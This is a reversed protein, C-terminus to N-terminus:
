LGALFDEDLELFDRGGITTADVKKIIIRIVYRDCNLSAPAGM